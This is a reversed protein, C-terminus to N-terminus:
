ASFVNQQQDYSPFGQTAIDVTAPLKEALWICWDLWVPKIYLEQRTSIFTTTNLCALRAIDQWTTKITISSWPSSSWVAKRLEVPIPRRSPRSICKPITTLHFVTGFCAEAEVKWSAGHQFRCLAKIFINTGLILLKSITSICPEHCETPNYECM